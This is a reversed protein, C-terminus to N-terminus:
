AALTREAAALARLEARNKRIFARRRAIERWFFDTEDSFFVQAGPNSIALRQRFERHSRIKALMDRITRWHSANGLRLGEARSRPPQETYESGPTYTFSM